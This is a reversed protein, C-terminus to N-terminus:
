GKVLKLRKFPLIRLIWDNYFNCQKVCFDWTTDVNVIIDDSRLMRMQQTEDTLSTPQENIIDPHVLSLKPQKM